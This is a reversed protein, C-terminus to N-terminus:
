FASVMEVWLQLFFYFIPFLHCFFKARNILRSVLLLPSELLEFRKCNLLKSFFVSCVLSSEPILKHVQSFNKDLVHSPGPWDHTIYLM